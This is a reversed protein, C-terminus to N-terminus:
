PARPTVARWSAIAASTYSTAALVLALQAVDAPGLASGSLPGAFALWAIVAIAGSSVTLRLLSLELGIVMMYSTWFDAVRLVAAAMLLPVFELASRYESFWRVVVANLVIGLPVAAAAGIVLAAVSTRASLSFAGHRGESGFRRALMPFVAANIVSQVSQAVMLVLWAFSYQAFQTAALLEAAIWRDVNILVFSIITVGLLASASRWKVRPLRRLALRYVFSASLGASQFTRGLTWQALVLTVLAETTLVWFASGGTTAVLGGLGAVGLARIFNQWAFRVPMGRSRSEVTAVLFIQQAFGHLVAIAFLARPLGAATVDAMVAILVLVACGLAVLVCQALLVLGPLERRRVIQISFDRLLMPQLGLCALMGFTTSVLLGASFAAFGPVDLLRAMLLTRLLMLALACSLLPMYWLQRLRRRSLASPFGM